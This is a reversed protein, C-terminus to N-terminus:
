AATPLAFYDPINDSSKYRTNEKDLREVTLQTPRTEPSEKPLKAFFGEPEVKRCRIAEFASQWREEEDEDPQYYFREVAERFAEYTRCEEAFDFLLNRYTNRFRLFAEEPTNGTEAIAGPRVGYLWWKGEEESCIVARGSLTVGALYGNGSVTDRVTFMVPYDPM